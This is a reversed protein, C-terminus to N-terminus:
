KRWFVCLFISVKKEDKVMYNRGLKKTLHPALVDFRRCFESFVMHDPYGQRYIRLADLLKSGRLQSRLLVVDLQMLGSDGSEGQSELEGRGARLADSNPLLCHIFHVRSRRVTDLLADVQLKIQICLSKKKVAAVGITFTKRMSTARRLALQSVGELGAISGSLTTAGGGRSM